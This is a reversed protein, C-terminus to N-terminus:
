EGKLGCKGELIRKLRAVQEGSAVVYLKDTDPRIDINLLRVENGAKIIAAAALPNVLKPEVVHVSPKESPKM